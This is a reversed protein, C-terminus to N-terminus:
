NEDFYSLVGEENLVETIRAQARNPFSVSIFNRTIKNKVVFLMAERDAIRFRATEGDRITGLRRVWVGDIKCEPVAHDEIYVLYTDKAAIDSHERNIILNRM